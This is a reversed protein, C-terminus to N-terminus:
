VASQGGDAVLLAGTVFSAENSALFLVCNAIEDPEAYRGLPISAIAAQRSEPPGLVDETLRTRVFGPLVANVRIGDPGYSVAMARVLSLLAGKSAAYAHTPRQSTGILASVSSTIVIAGSGSQRLHPVVARCLAYVGRTNIAFALDWCNPDISEVTGGVSITGIAANAFAIDLGAGAEQNVVQQVADPDSVDCAVFRAQGGRGILDDVLKRGDETNVDLIILSAGEAVFRHATAAGIGTAAGSMIARKGSLRKVYL